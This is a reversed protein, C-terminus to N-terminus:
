YISLRITLNQLIMLSSACNGSCHKRDRMPLVKHTLNMNTRRKGIVLLKPVANHHKKDERITDNISKTTQEKQKIEKGEKTRFM